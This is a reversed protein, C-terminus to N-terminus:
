TTERPLARIEDAIWEYTASDDDAKRVIALCRKVTNAVTEAELTALYATLTALDNVYAEYTALSPFHGAIQEGELREIAEAIDAKM